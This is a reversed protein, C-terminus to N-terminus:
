ERAFHTECVCRFDGEGIRVLRVDRGELRLRHQQTSETCEECQMVCFTSVPTRVRSRPFSHIADPM